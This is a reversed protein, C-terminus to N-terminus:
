CRVRLRQSILSVVEVAMQLQVPSEVLIRSGGPLEIVLGRAGANQQTAGKGTEVLAEFLRLPGGSPRPDGPGVAPCVSTSLAARRKRRQHVWGAFTAYNVGALRAFNAGSAGSSEFEDLLAERREKPVRVRGRVDQKLVEAGAIMSSM